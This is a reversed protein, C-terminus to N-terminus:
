GSPSERGENASSVGENLLILGDGDGWVSSDISFYMSQGWPHPSVIVVASSDVCRSKCIASPSARSSQPVAWVEKLWFGDLSTGVSM